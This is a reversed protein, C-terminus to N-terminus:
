EKLSHRQKKTMRLTPLMYTAMVTDHRFIEIFADRDADKISDLVLRATVIKKQKNM